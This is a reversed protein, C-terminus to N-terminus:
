GVSKPVPTTWSIIKAFLRRLVTAGWRSPPEEGNWEDILQAIKMDEDLDVFVVSKIEKRVGILRLTYVFTQTYIVRNPSLGASLIRTSVHEAKRVTRPIAFLIASITHLNTCKFLPHELTADARWRRHIIEVSAKGSYLQELDALVDKFALTVAPDEASRSMSRRRWAKGHLPPEIDHPHLAGSYHAGSAISGVLGEPHTSLRSRHHIITPSPSLPRTPRSPHQSESSM